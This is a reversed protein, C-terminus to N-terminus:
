KKKLLFLLYKSFLLGICFLYKQVSRATAQPEYEYELDKVPAIISLIARIEAM